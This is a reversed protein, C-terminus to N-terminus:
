PAGEICKLAWYFKGGEIIGGVRQFTIRRCDFTHQSLRPKMIDQFSSPLAALYINYNDDGYYENPDPLKKFAEVLEETSAYWRRMEISPVM